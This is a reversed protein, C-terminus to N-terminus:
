GFDSRTSMGARSSGAFFVRMAPMFRINRCISIFHRFITIPDAEIDAPCEGVKNQEVGGLVPNADVFVQGRGSIWRDASHLAQAFKHRCGANLQRVHRFKHVAGREDGICQDLAAAAVSPKSVVCPIRSRM